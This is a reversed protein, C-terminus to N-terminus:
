RSTSHEEPAAPPRDGMLEYVAASAFLLMVGGAFIVPSFPVRPDLEGGSFLRFSDALGFGIMALAVIVTGLTALFRRARRRAGPPRAQADFRRAEPVIPFLRAFVLMVVLVLGCLGGVLAVEVWTPVYPRPPEVPLLAGHTQSPVVTLLRELVSAVNALCGAIVLWVASFRRSVFMAFPIVFAAALSAAAVWFSLSFSGAVLEHAVRREAVPAAYSSTLVQVVLFYLYVLAGPWLLNGLWRLAADPIREGLGLLVRMGWCVVILAGIGSVAALVVFSPAALAGFWGPRGGQIGFIFGLTSHAIGLLPLILISMWRTSRRHRRLETANGTYGWAWLRYIFRLPRPGEEAMRAADARGTLFLYVMSSFLTASIVLTFTGFFPSMPRALAPLNRLGHGPRGLDSVVVCAAALLSSITLLEAIRTVPQLAEIHFLRAIAAISIGGFSIGIFYADFAIYLGWAAGGYGPNRMSTVIDGHARQQSFAYLGLGLALLSLALIGYFLRPRRPEVLQKVGGQM